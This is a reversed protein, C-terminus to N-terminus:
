PTAPGAAPHDLHSQRPSNESASAIGGEWKKIEKLVARRSQELDPPVAKKDIFHSIKEEIILLNRKYNRLIHRRQAAERSDGRNVERERAAWPAVGPLGTPIKAGAAYYALPFDDANSLRMIPHQKEQTRQPVVHAIHFAVDTLRAYGDQESPNCGALGERLAQTFVSYPSGTWSVETNRSSAILIRGSGKKLSEALTPPVSSKTFPGRKIATMGGAHCCDLLVLLKKSQIAKLKVTLAADSIATNNLDAYDYDYPVLHYGPRFGGHGSFYFIITAAPDATAKVALWDLGELIRDRCAHSETLLKVNEPPYACRGKDTLIDSFGEADSATVKLDAGVGVVLAYGHTFRTEVIAHPKANKKTLTAESAVKEKATFLALTRQDDARKLIDPLTM